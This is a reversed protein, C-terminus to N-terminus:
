KAPLWSVTLVIVTVKPNKKAWAKVDKLTKLEKMAAIDKVSDRFQKERDEDAVVAFELLLEENPRLARDAAARVGGLYNGKV